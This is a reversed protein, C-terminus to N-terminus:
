NTTEAINQGIVYGDFHGEARVIFGYTDAKDNTATMTPATGGPWSVTVAAPSGGGSTVSIYDSDDTSAENVEDFLDEDVEESNLWDGIDTDADPRAYQTM